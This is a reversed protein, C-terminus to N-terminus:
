FPKPAIFNVIGLGLLGLLVIIVGLIVNSYGVDKKERDGNQKAFALGRKTFVLGAVGMPFLTFLFLPFFVFHIIGLLLFVFPTAYCYTAKKYCRVTAARVEIAETVLKM